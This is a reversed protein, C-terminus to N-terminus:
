KNIALLIKKMKEYNLPKELYEIVNSYRSAMEKDKPRSSSTLLVIPIGSYQNKVEESDLFEFGDMVPMNVDLFILNPQEKALYELALEGNLVADVNEFGINKLKTTTIYNTIEDDEVLLIKFVSSTQNEM